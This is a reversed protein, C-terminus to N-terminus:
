TEAAEERIDWRKTVTRRPLGAARLPCIWGPSLSSATSPRGTPPRCCLSRDWIRLLAPFVSLSLM